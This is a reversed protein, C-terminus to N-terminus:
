RSGTRHGVGCDGARCRRDRLGACCGGLSLLWERLIRVRHHGVREGCQSLASEACGVKASVIGRVGDVVLRQGIGVVGLRVAM